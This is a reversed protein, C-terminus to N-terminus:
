RGTSGFGGSGRISEELEKVEIFDGDFRWRIVMQAIKEGVEIKSNYVLDPYCGGIDAKIDLPIKNFILIIEGRYDYDIIAVSNALQLYKKYISSRPFIEIYYAPPPQIALGTYVKIQSGTDEVRDCFIDYGTDSVHTKEPM